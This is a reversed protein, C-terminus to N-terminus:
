QGNSQLSDINQRVFEYIVIASAVSMNLSNVHGFQPIEIIKDCEKRVGDSLSKDEGGILFLCSLPLTASTISEGNREIGIIQYFSNKFEKITPYIASKIIPIHFVAGTSIKAITPTISMSNPIIVGSIGACEATRIIAGINQEFTAESIYIFSNAEPTLVEKLKKEHFEIDCAVGQHEDSHALKNLVKINAFSVRVGSDEALKTINAIKPDQNINAELFVERVKFNSKLAETVTNRGYALM